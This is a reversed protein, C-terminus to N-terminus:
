GRSASSKTARSTALQEELAVGMSELAPNNSWRLERVVRRAKEPDREALGYVLEQHLVMDCLDATNGRGSANAKRPHPHSRIRDGMHLSGGVWAAIQTPMLLDLAQATKREIESKM